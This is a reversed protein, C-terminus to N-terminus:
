VKEIDITPDLDSIGESINRHIVNLTLMDNVWDCYTKNDNYGIAPSVSYEGGM